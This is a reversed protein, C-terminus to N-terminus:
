EKRLKDKLDDFYWVRGFAGIGATEEKGDMKVKVISFIKYDNVQISNDKIKVPFDKSLQKVGHKHDAEDPNSFFAIALVVVVAILLWKLLTKFIRFAVYLVLIALIIIIFMKM